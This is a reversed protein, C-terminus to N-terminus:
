INESICDVVDSELITEAFKNKKYFCTKKYFLQRQGQENIDEIMITVSCDSNIRSTVIQDDDLIEIEAPRCQEANEVFCSETDCKIIEKSYTASYMYFIGALGAALLIFLLLWATKISKKPKMKNFPLTGM